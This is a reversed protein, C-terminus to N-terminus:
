VFAVGMDTANGWIRRVHRPTDHFGGRDVRLDFQNPLLPVGDFILRAGDEGLNRIRCSYTSNNGHFIVTGTLLTRRRFSGRRDETETTTEITM